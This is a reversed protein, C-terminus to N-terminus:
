TLWTFGPLSREFSHPLFLFFSAVLAFVVSRRYLACRRAPVQALGGFVKVQDKALVFGFVLDASHKRSGIVFEIAELEQVQLRIQPLNYFM